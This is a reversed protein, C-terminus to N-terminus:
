DLKWEHNPDPVFTISSRWEYGQSTTFSDGLPVSTNVDMIANVLWGGHIKTRRLFFGNDHKIEEWKLEM